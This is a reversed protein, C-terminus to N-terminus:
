HAGFNIKFSVNPTIGLMQLETGLIRIANQNGSTNQNPKFTYINQRNKVNQRNLINFVSFGLESRFGFLPFEYIAGLDVRHYDDLYSIREIARLERRDLNQFARITLDTYPQGTSFVYVMSFRWKKWRYQNIWKLQHRRDDPSPFVANANIEPFQQTAKSLTYALWGTYKGSTKKLLLDMGRVLGTGNFLQYEGVFSSDLRSVVLAHELINEIDKQYFEIDFEFDNNSWSAGLMINRSEAVPFIQGDALVRFDYQQAWPTEHTARRLFQYYSSWSAKLYSDKGMQYAMSIRPSHYWQDTLDFYTSRLGLAVNLKDFLSAQYNAFAATQQGINNQVNLLISDRIELNTFTKKRSYSAGFSLTQNSSLKLTNKLRLDASELDNVNSQFVAREVFIQRAPISRTYNSTWSNSNEYQSFAAVLTSSFRDSWTNQLQVSTGTNRWNSREEFSAVEFNQLQRFYERDFTYDFQDFGKFFSFQATTAKSIKWKLKANFDYFQFNPDVGVLETRRNNDGRVTTTDRVQQDLLSFLKTAAVNRNTIRGGLLIGVKPSLPMEIYGTTTLLNLEVSGNVEREEIPYTSIDIVSATKGGYEVPFINKYVKIEDVVAPNIASFIGFYHSINYLSIGDLLIMNADGDSGRVKLESSLDDFASIGPLLQLNRIPDVGGVFAPLTNLKDVKITTSGSMKDPQSFAPEEETITIPDIERLEPFLEIRLNQSPIFKGFPIVLTKYGLYQITIATPTKEKTYYFSFSGDERTVTGETSSYSIAAYALPDGTNGDIVTGQLEIPQELEKRNAPRILVENDRQIRYVLPTNRLVQKLADSLSLQEFNASIQIGEIAKHQYSIKLSYQEEWDELVEILAIEKYNASIQYSRDQAISSLSSSVIIFFLLLHKM